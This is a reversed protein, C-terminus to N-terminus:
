LGTEMQPSKITVVQLPYGGGEKSFYSTEIKSSSTWQDLQESDLKEFLRIIVDLGSMMKTNTWQSASEWVKGKSDVCNSWHEAHGHGVDTNGTLEIENDKYGPDEFMQTWMQRMKKTQLVNM